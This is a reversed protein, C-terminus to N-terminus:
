KKNRRNRRNASRNANKLEMHFKLHAIFWFKFAELWVKLQVIRISICKKMKSCINM